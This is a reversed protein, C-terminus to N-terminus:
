KHYILQDCLTGSLEENWATMFLSPLVLPPAQIVFNCRVRYCVRPPFGSRDSDSLLRILAPLSTQLQQDIPHPQDVLTYKLATVVTARISASAADAKQQIVPIVVPPNLLALHGLCESVTNRCEEESECSQLLLNLAQFCAAFDHIRITPSLCTLCPWAEQLEIQPNGSVSEQSGHQM